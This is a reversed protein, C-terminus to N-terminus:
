ECRGRIRARTERMARAVEAEDEARQMLVPLSVDLAQALVVVKEFTPSAGGREIRSVYSHHVGAAGALERINLRRGRRLRRIAAGLDANSPLM